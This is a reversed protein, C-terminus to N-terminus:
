GLDKPNILKNNKLLTAMQALHVPKVNNVYKLILNGMNAKLIIGIHVLCLPMVIVLRETGVYQETAGPPPNASRLNNQIMNIMTATVPISNWPNNSPLGSYLGGHRPAPPMTSDPSYDRHAAPVPSQEVTNYDGKPIQASPAASPMYPAYPCWTSYAEM